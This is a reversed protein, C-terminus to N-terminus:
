MVTLRTVMVMARVMMMIIFCAFITVVGREDRKYRRLLRLTNQMMYRKM